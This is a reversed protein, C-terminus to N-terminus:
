SFNSILRTNWADNWFLLRTSWCDSGTGTSIAAGVDEDATYQTLPLILEYTM